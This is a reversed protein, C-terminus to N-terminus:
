LPSTNQHLQLNAIVTHRRKLSRNGKRRVRFNRASIKNRLQRKEKSSLKKYEEPSPRWDDDKEEERDKNLERLKQPLTLNLTPTASSRKVVGSASLLQTPKRHQKASSRTSTAVPPPTADEGDEDDEDEEGDDEEEEEGDENEESMQRPSASPRRARNDATISPSAMLQPDIAGGFTSGPFLNLQTESPSLTDPFLSGYTNMMMHDGPNGNNLTSTSPFSSFLDAFSTPAGQLPIQKNFTSSYLAEAMQQDLDLQQYTPTPPTPPLGSWGPSSSSSPSSTSTAPTFDLKSVDIIDELLQFSSQSRPSLLMTSTM